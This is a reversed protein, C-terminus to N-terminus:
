LAGKVATEAKQVGTTGYSTRYLIDRKVDSLAMDENRRVQKGYQGRRQLRREERSCLIWAPIGYLASVSVIVIGLPKIM